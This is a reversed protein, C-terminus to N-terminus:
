PSWLCSESTDWISLRCVIMYRTSPVFYFGYHCLCPLYLQETLSLLLLNYMNKSKLSSDKLDPKQLTKLATHVKKEKWYASFFLCQLLLNLLVRKKKFILSFFATVIKWPPSNPFIHVHNHSKTSNHAYVKISTSSYFINISLILKCLSRRSFSYQTKHVIM